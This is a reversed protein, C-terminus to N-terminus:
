RFFHEVGVSVSNFLLPNNGFGNKIPANFNLNDRIIIRTNYSVFYNANFSIGTINFAQNSDYSYFLQNYVSTFINTRTNPFYGWELYGWLQSFMSGSGTTINTNGVANKANSYQYSTALSIGKNFQWNMNKASYNDIGLALTGIVSSSSNKQSTLIGSKTQNESKNSYAVGPQWRIYKQKGHRRNPNFAYYWNDALTTFYGISYKDILNSKQLFSDIQQLEFIRKRRFDFLLTNNLATITKALDILNASDFDKTLLKQKQLDTLIFYAMQADTVNEIRGKGIGITFGMAANYNNNKQILTDTFISKNLDVSPTIFFGTEIFNTGKFKKTTTTFNSTLGGSSQKQNNNSARNSNFYFVPQMNANTEAQKKDTSKIAYYNIVPAINLSNSQNPYNGISINNSLGGNVSLLKFGNTRYKYNQLAQAQLKQQAAASFILISFAILLVPKM